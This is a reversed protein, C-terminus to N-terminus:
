IGKILKTATKTRLIDDIEESFIRELSKSATKRKEDRLKIVQNHWDEGSNACYWEDYARKVGFQAGMSSTPGFCDKKVLLNEGCALCVKTYPDTGPEPTFHDVGAYYHKNM